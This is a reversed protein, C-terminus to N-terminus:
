IQSDKGDRCLFNNSHLSLERYQTKDYQHLVRRFSMIRFSETWQLGDGVSM